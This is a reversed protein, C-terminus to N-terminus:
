PKAAVGAPAREGATPTPTVPSPAAPPSAPDPPAQEVPPPTEEFVARVTVGREAPRPALKEVLDAALQGLDQRVVSRSRLARELRAVQQFSAKSGDSGSLVARYGLYALADRRLAELLRAAQAQSEGDLEARLHPKLGRRNGGWITGLQGFEEVGGPLDELVLVPDTRVPFDRSFLQFLLAGDSRAQVKAALPGVPFIPESSGAVLQVLRTRAAGDLAAQDDTRARPARKLTTMLDRVQDVGIVVNLASGRSYAAHYVGVLEFEGTRCSVAFVPSGSSGISLLADIVFDDHDWEGFDDHDFASIVKGLNEAKVVGLPFGRVSVVNRERLAASRGIRWPMVPLLARAKLIAVDLQPDAVVRSLPVDDREYGDSDDDVIVLAESVRRCGAPVDAVNHNADTAAPWGSVHENTLVLTAGDQQRFAFGTGHAVADKRTVHLTGDIGYYPCEYVASTRICFAYAAAQQEFGRAAPQLAGLDDAYDGACYPGPTAPVVRTRPGPRAARATGAEKRAAGPPPGGRGAPPPPREARAAAGLAMSLVLM